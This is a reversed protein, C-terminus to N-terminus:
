QKAGCHGVRREAGCHEQCVHDDRDGAITDVADLYTTDEGPKGTSVADIAEDRPSGAYKADLALTTDRTRGPIWCRLRAIIEARPFCDAKLVAAGVVKVIVTRARGTPASAQCGAPAAM